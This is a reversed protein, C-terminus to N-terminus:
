MDAQSPWAAGSQLTAPSCAAPSPPGLESAVSWAPALRALSPSNTRDRGRRRYGSTSQEAYHGLVFSCRGDNGDHPREEYRRPGTPCFDSSLYIFLHGCAAENPPSSASSAQHRGRPHPTTHICRGIRSRWCGLGVSPPSSPSSQPLSCLTM